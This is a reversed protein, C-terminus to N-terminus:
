KFIELDLTHQLHTHLYKVVVRNSTYRLFMSPRFFLCVSQFVIHSLSSITVKKGNTNTTQIEMWQETLYTHIYTHQM